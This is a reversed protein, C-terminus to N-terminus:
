ARQLCERAKIEFRCCFDEWESTYNTRLQDVPGQFRMAINYQQITTNVQLNVVPKIEMSNVFAITGGQVVYRNGLFLQPDDRQEVSAYFADMDIHVIKRM